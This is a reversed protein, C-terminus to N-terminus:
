LCNGMGRRLIRRVSLTMALPRVKPSALGQMRALNSRLLRECHCTLPLPRVKPSALGQMHALNSRLLRECHCTLPLHPSVFNHQSEADRAVPVHGYQLM